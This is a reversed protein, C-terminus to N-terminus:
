RRVEFRVKVMDEQVFAHASEAARRYAPRDSGRVLERVRALLRGAADAREPSAYVMAIRVKWAGNADVAVRAHDLGNALDALVPAHGRLSAPPSQGRMAAEVGVLGEGSPEIREADPGDRAVRLLPEVLATSAVAVAGSSTELLLSPAGRLTSRDRHEYLRADRVTGADRWDPNGCAAAPRAKGPDPSRDLVVAVDGEFGGSGLRMGFWLTRTAGLCGALSALLPESAGAGRAWALLPADVGLARARAWDARAVLDLDGPLLHPALLSPRLAAAPVPGRAPACAGAVLLLAPLLTPRPHARALVHM